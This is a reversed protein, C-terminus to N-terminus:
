HSEDDSCSDFHLVVESIGPLSKGMWDFEKSSKCKGIARPFSFEDNWQQNIHRLM